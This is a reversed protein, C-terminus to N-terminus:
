HSQMMVRRGKGHLPNGHLGLHVVFIDIGVERCGDVCLVNLSHEATTFINDLPEVQLLVIKQSPSFAAGQEGLTHQTM